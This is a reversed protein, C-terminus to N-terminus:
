GRADDECMARLSLGVYDAAVSFPLKIMARGLSLPFRFVPYVDYGWEGRPRRIPSVCISCGNGIRSNYTWHHKLGFARIPDHESRTISRDSTHIVIFMTGKVNRSVYGEMVGPGIVSAKSAM